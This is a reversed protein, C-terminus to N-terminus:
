EPIVFTLPSFVGMNKPNMLVHDLKQKFLGQLFTIPCQFGVLTYLLSQFHYSCRVICIQVISEHGALFLYLIYYFAPTLRQYQLVHYLLFLGNQPNAFTAILCATTNPLYKLEGLFISSNKDSINLPLSNSEYTQFSISTLLNSSARAAYM